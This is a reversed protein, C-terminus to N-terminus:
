ADGKVDEDGMLNLIALKLKAVETKSNEVKNFTEYIHNLVNSYNKTMLELAQQEEDSLNKVNIINLIDSKLKEELKV